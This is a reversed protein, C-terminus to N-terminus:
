GNMKGHAGNERATAPSIQVFKCREHFQTLSRAGVYTFSSRLGGSIDQLIDSVPGKAPVFFSEGEATRHKGTKGQAEYSEQSASGRYKKFYKPKLFGKKIKEGPTEDTGSLMGGLMVMHAGAGLAKAIDGPTKMGGDAVVQINTGKLLEAIEKVASLQPYGVGTKIRTTCASGPGVGVKIANFSGKAREYFEKVSDASAFNGVMIYATPILGRLSNAQDAVAQQAGHAVDIIFHTAGQMHLYAARNLEDMGLGISVMPKNEFRKFLEVTEEISAFRHLCAQAGNAIMANVMTEGTITDM